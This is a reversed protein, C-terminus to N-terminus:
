GIKRVSSRMYFGFITLLAGFIILYGSIATEFDPRAGLMVILIIFPFFLTSVAGGLAFFLSGNVDKRLRVAAAIEIVGAFILASVFIGDPSRLVLVLLLVVLRFVGDAILLRGRKGASHINLGAILACIGDILLYAAILLTLVAHINIPNGQLALCHLSTMSIENM